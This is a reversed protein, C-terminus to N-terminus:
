SGRSCRLYYERLKGYDESRSASQLTYDFHESMKIEKVATQMRKEIEPGDDCGRAILRERLQDISSPRVFVSFVIGNLGINERSFEKLSSAGNVDVNLLLSSKNSSDKMELISQKLIGYLNGHVREYEIFLQKEVKELFEDEEMFHYDIGDEEGERPQRTTVTVVRKIEPYFEGLLRDCLTTKGVGAPGSIVFVIGRVLCHKM